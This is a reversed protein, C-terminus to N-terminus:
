ILKGFCRNIWDINWIKVKFDIWKSKSLEIKIWEFKKWLIVEYQVQTQLWITFKILKKFIQEVVLPFYFELFFISYSKM